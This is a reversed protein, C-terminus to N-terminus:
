NTNIPDSLGFRVTVYARQRLIPRSAPAPADARALPEITLALLKPYPLYDTM